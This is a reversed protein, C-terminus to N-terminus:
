VSESQGKPFIKSVSLAISGDIESLFQALDFLYERVATEIRVFEELKDDWVDFGKIELPRDEKISSNRHKQRQFRGQEHDLTLGASSGSQTSLRLKMPGFTSIRNPDFGIPHRHFDHERIREIIVFRRVREIAHPRLEALETKISGDKVRDYVIEYIARAAYISSIMNWSFENINKAHISKELFYFSRLFYESVPINEFMTFDDVKM